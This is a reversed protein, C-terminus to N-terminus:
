LRNVDLNPLSSKWDWLKFLGSKRHTIVGKNSLTFCNITDEQQNGETTSLSLIVFGNSMSLISITGAKQCFLHDAYGNRQLSTINCIFCIKKKLSVQVNGGTYFAGHRYKV